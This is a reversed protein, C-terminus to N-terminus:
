EVVCEIVVRAPEVAGYTPTFRVSDHAGDPCSAPDAVLEYCPSRGTSCEPLTAEYSESEIWAACGVQRGPEDPDLDALTGWCPPGILLFKILQPILSLVTSSDEACISAEVSREPFETLLSRVRPAPQADCTPDVPATPAIVADVIVNLSDVKVDRLFQGYSAISGPSMDDTASVFVVVLYAHKRVFGANEISNSLARQMAELPRQETCGQDGVGAMQPFVTELTGTYNRLRSDDAQRIDSLYPGTVPAGNTELVGTETCGTVVGIHLDPLGSPVSALVQMYRAFDQQLRTVHPTMAPSNDVVFLMDIQRNVYWPRSQRSTKSTVEPGAPPPPESCAGTLLACAILVRPAIM